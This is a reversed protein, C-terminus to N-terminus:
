LELLSIMRTIMLRWGRWIPIQQSKAAETSRYAATSSISVTPTQASKRLLPSPAEPDDPDGVHTVPAPRAWSNAVQMPVGLTLMMLLVILYRLSPVPDWCGRKRRM